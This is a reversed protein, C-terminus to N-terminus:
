QSVAAIQRMTSLDRILMQLTQKTKPFNDHTEESLPNPEEDELASISITRYCSFAKFLQRCM